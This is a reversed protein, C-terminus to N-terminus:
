VFAAVLWLGIAIFILAIGKRILSGRDRSEGLQAALRKGGFWAVCILCAYQVAQMASVVSPNGQSLAANVLVFGFSGLVQGIIALGLSGNKSGKQGGFATRIEEGARRDLVFLVLLGMFAAAVRSLVFVTWFPQLSFAYKGVINTVSFLVASLLSYLFVPLLAQTSRSRSPQYTLLGVSILLLVFGYLSAGELGLGLFVSSGIFTLLPILVGVVPVVVTMEGRRMAEFFAWLAFVFCAGFFFIPVAELWSPLSSLFPVAVVLLGMLVGILGAYTASRVFASKLLIKDIVFAAGNFLHGTFALLLWTM